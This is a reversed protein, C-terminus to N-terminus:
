LFFATSWNIGRSLLFTWALYKHINGQKGRYKQIGTVILLAYCGLFLFSAIIHVLLLLTMGQISKEIAQNQIEVWVLLLLDAVLASLMMKIHLKRRHRLSVGTWIWLYILSNTLTAINM